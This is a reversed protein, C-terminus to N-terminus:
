AATQPGHASLMERASEPATSSITVRRPDSLERMKELAASNLNGRAMGAFGQRSGAIVEDFSWCRLEAGAANYRGVAHRERECSNSLEWRLHAVENVQVISRDLLTNRETQLAPHEHWRQALETFNPLSHKSARHCVAPRPWPM